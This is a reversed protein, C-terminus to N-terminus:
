GKETDACVSDAAKNAEEILSRCAQKLEQIDVILSVSFLFCGFHVSLSLHLVSFFFNWLMQKCGTKQSAWGCVQIYSIRWIHMCPPPLHRFYLWSSSQGFITKITDSPRPMCTMNGVLIVKNPKVNADAPAKRCPEVTRQIPSSVLAEFHSESAQHQCSANATIFPLNIETQTTSSLKIKAKEVAEHVHQIAMREGKLDIGSQKLEALIHNVLVIDFDEGVWLAGRCRWFLSISPEMEWIMRLLWQTIPATSVTLSPPPPLSPTHGWFSPTSM